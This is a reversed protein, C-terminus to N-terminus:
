IGDIVKILLDWHIIIAIGVFSCSIELATVISSLYHLDHLSHLAIQITLICKLLMSEKSIQLNLDRQDGEVYMEQGGDDKHLM